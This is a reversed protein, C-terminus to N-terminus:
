YGRACDFPKKKDDQIETPKKKLADMEDRIRQKLDNNGAM